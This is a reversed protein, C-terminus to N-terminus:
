GAEGPRNGVPGEWTVNIAAFYAPLRPLRFEAASNYRAGPPSEVAASETAPRRGLWVAPGFTVSGVLITVFTLLGVMVIQRGAFSRFVPVACGM